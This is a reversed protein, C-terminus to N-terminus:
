RYLFADPTQRPARWRPFAGLSFDGLSGRFVLDFPLLSERGRVLGYRERVSQYVFSSEAAPRLDAEGTLGFGARELYVDRQADPAQKADADVLSNRHVADDLRAAIQALRAPGVKKHRPEPLADEDAGEAILRIELVRGGRLVIGDPHLEGDAEDGNLLAPHLGIGERGAVEPNELLFSRTIQIHQPSADEAESRARLGADRGPDSDPFERAVGKLVSARSDRRDLRAVTELRSEATREVLEAREEPDFHPILDALRLARGPRERRREYDYLWQVVARQEAGEPFRGLYRYGALAAARDFDPGGTFPSLLARVPALILTMAITPADIVYALASPLNPYRPRNVWEGALRYALENRKGQRKLREFARYPNQWDDELLRRAHRAMTSAEADLNALGALRDRAESEFGAENQVLAHVFEGRDAAGGAAEYAQRSMALRTFDLDSRLITEAFRADAESLSGPLLRAELARSKAEKAQSLELGAKQGARELRARLSTNAEPHGELTRLSAEVQYAAFDARGRDLAREAARVGRLALTRELKIADRDIREELATRIPTDPHRALFDQRLRLGQRGFASIPEVNSFDAVYHILSNALQFPAITFGTIASNGLPESLSNFTRAWLQEWDDLQRRKALRLPDDAITRDLRNRLRPDLGRTKRLARSAKRDAIPDDLTANRLDQALPLLRKRDEDTAATELRALADDIKPSSVLAARALAAAELDSERPLWPKPAAIPLLVEDVVIAQPAICGTATAMWVLLAFLVFCREEVRHRRILVTPM